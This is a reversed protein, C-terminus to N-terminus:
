GPLVRTAYRVEIGASALIQFYPRSRIPSNNVFVLTQFGEARAKAGVIRGLERKREPSLASPHVDYADLRERDLHM